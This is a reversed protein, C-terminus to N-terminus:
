QLVQTIQMKKLVMLCILIDVALIEVGVFLVPLARLVIGVLAAFVQLSIYIRCFFYRVDPGHRYYVKVGEAPQVGHYVLVRLVEAVRVGVTQM